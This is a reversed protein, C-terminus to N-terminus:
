NDVWFPINAHATNNNGDTVEVFLRYAGPQSPAKFTTKAGGNKSFLNNFSDPIYEADGGTKTSESEKMIEWRYVLKDNDPDSAKVLAPYSTGKKLKINDFAKQSNLTLDILRPSRNKPWENKWIYHMMDVSETEDGNPMLMGFWTPTREQKQGWLFVFSGMVQQSLSQISKRYRSLYFDAKQSSNNEVPAGWETKGVEWWGTAGWETVLLPGKYNSEKLLKPLVEIGAYMQTCIFDLDPAREAILDVYKKDIGALPTATLHNPDIEHIMKSIDNVANWVKPNKSLHNLENGLGWIMLAPHDKLALVQKRINELQLKVAREDNYDFGHRELGIWIGMMVKLGLKDAKDLIEKGNDTSWTRIANAGHESLAELSGNSVGAGKVYFPKGNLLLQYGTDTLRIESKTVKKTTKTQSISTFNGLLLLILFLFFNPKQFNNREM